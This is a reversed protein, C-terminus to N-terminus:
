CGASRAGAAAPGALQQAAPRCEREFLTSAAASNSLVTQADLEAQLACACRPRLCSCSAAALRVSARNHSGQETSVRSSRLSTPKSLQRRATRVLRYGATHLDVPLTAGVLAAEQVQLLSRAQWASRRVQQGPQLCCGAGAQSIGAGAQLHSRCDGQQQSCAERQPVDMHLSRRPARRVGNQAYLGAGTAALQAPGEPQCSLPPM